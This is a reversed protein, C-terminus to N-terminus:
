RRLRAPALDAARVGHAALDAPVDEGAIAAAAFAGLAASTQMGYGGLAAHWYFGPATEDFGSVPNRDPGFTRLGAWSRIVRRIPFNLVSEIRDVAIAVDLDEPQADCPPSAAEESLSGLVRGADPKFYFQEECDIVMPWRDSSERSPADFTFATRRYPILKLPAIGALAAVEDAWGGAANVVVRAAIERDPTKVRWTAGTRTLAEVPQGTLITLGKRRAAKLYGQLLVEVDMDMALEDYLGWSVTDPRLESVLKVIEAPSLRTLTQASAVALSEHKARAKEQDARGIVLSGRPSLITGFESPPAQYFPGSATTLARIVTSGYQPHYLAASRGTSHYGIHPERELILVSTGPAVNYAISAAAMGGGIICVDVSEM